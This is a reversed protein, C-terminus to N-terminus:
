ELAWRATISVTVESEGREPSFTASDKAMAAVRV